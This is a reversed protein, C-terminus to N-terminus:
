SKKRNAGFLFNTWQQLNSETLQQKSVASNKEAEVDTSPVILQKEGPSGRGLRQRVALDQYEVTQYYKAEYEALSVKLTELEVQQKKNDLLQQLHYNRQMAEVSGWAWSLAILVAGAIIVNNLTLYDHRIHYILRRLEHKDLKKIMM